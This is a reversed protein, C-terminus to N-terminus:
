KDNDNDNDHEEHDAIKAKDDKEYIKKMLKIIIIRSM